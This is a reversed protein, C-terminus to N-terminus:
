WFGNKMIIYILATTKLLFIVM